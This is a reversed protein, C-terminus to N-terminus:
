IECGKEKEVGKCVDQGSGGWAKDKGSGGVLTDGGELGRLKDNGAGGKLTDNSDSGTLIDNGARGTIYFNYASGLGTKGGTITDNFASGKIIEVGGISDDGEGSAFGLSVDAEIGAPSDAFDVTDAGSDGIFDDNGLGGYFTDNGSEGELWDNGDNGWLVNRLDNGYIDDDGSGGIANELDDPGGSLDDLADLDIVQGTTKASADVTDVGDGGSFGWVASNWLLVDDFASGVFGYVDLFEDTGQGAATGLGPDISMAASSTSFDIVDTDGANGQVYDDGDGPIFWEDWTALGYISDNGTGTELIEFNLQTDVEDGVDLLDGDCNADHGAIGLPNDIVTCTTRTGYSVQDYGGDGDVYDGNFLGPAIWDDDVGGYAELYVNASLGSGDLVNDGDGGYLYINEASNNLEGAAGNLEFADDTVTVEDDFPTAVGPNSGDNGMWEFWDGAVTNTGLDIAWAITSPFRGGSDYEDIIFAEDASPQGLVTIAVTNSVSASGCALWTPTTGTYVLISGPGATPSPDLDDSATEVAIYVYDNADITIAISDTTPNYTCGTVAAASGAGVIALAQFTGVLAVTTV